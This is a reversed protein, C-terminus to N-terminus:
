KIIEKSAQGDTETQRDTESQTQRDTERDHRDTERELLVTAVISIHTPKQALRNVTSFYLKISRDIM